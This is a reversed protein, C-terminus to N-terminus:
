NMDIMGERAEALSIGDAIMNVKKATKMAKRIQAAQQIGTTAIPRNNVLRGNKITLEEM